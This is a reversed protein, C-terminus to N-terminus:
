VVLAKNSTKLFEWRDEVRRRWIRNARREGAEEERHRKRKEGKKRLIGKDEAEPHKGWM